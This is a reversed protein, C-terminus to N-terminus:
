RGPPWTFIRLTPGDRAPGPAFEQLLAGSAMLRDYFAAEARYRAPDDFYPWYTWSSAVVVEPVATAAVAGGSV